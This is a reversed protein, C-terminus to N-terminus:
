TINEINDIITFCREPNFIVRIPLHAVRRLSQIIHEGVSLDIITNSWEFKAYLKAIDPAINNLESRPWHKVLNVSCEQRVPDVTIGVLGIANRLKSHAIGVLKITDNM